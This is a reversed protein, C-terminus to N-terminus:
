LHHQHDKSRAKRRENSKRRIKPLFNMKTPCSEFSELTDELSRWELGLAQVALSSDIASSHNILDVIERSIGPRGGNAVCRSEEQDAFEIAASASLPAPPPPHGYRACLLELLAQLRINHGVMLVRELPTPATALSVLGSAVDRVDVLNIVGDPHPPVIGQATAVLLASTGVKWDWAGICAGPCAVSVEFREEALVAQEMHYKLDHYVGYNPAKEFRDAENAMGTVPPAVTATSSVYVLRQVDSAACADLVNQTQRQGLELTKERDLSFKPYHGALHFVVKKGKMANLLTEPEDLETHVLPLKRRRLELVNSRRRRGCTVQFSSDSLKELLNLGLFGGAGIILCDM